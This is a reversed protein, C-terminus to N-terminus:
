HARSASLTARVFLARHGTVLARATVAALQDLAESYAGVDEALAALNSRVTMQADTHGLAGLLALAEESNRRSPEFQGASRQAEALNAIAFAQEASGATALEAAQRYCGQAAQFDDLRLHVNGKAMVARGLEPGGLDIAQALEVLAQAYRGQEELARALHRLAQPRREPLGRDLALRHVAVADTLILAVNLHPFLLASLDSLEEALEWHAAVGALAVLTSRHTELYGRAAEAASATDGAGEGTEPSYHGHQGAYGPFLTESAVEIRSLHHRVLRRVAARQSSHPVDDVMVAAAVDRVIDHWGYVGDVEQM